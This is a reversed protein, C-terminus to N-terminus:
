WQRSRVVELGDGAATPEAVVEFPSAITDITRRGHAAPLIHAHTTGGLTEVRNTVANVFQYADRLDVYQLLATLSGLCCVLEDSGEGDDGATADMDDLVDTIRVGVDTLNAPGSAAVTVVGEDGDDADPEASDCPTADVGRVAAGTGGAARVWERPPSRGARTFAVRLFAGTRATTATGDHAERSQPCHGGTASPAALVLASLDSVGETPPTSGYEARSPTGSM